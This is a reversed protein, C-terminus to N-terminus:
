RNPILLAYVLATPRSSQLERVVPKTTHLAEEIGPIGSVCSLTFSVNKALSRTSIM